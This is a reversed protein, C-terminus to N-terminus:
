PRKCAGTAMADGSEFKPTYGTANPLGASQMAVPLSERISALMEQEIVNKQAATMTKVSPWFDFRCQLMPNVGGFPGGGALKATGYDINSGTHADVASVVYNTYLSAPTAEGEYSGPVDLGIGTWSIRGFSTFSPSVIVYADVPKGSHLIQALADRRDDENMAGLKAGDIGLDVITFRSALATEVYHRVMANVDTTTALQETGEGFSLLSMQRIVISNPLAVIVGVAHVDKYEDALAAHAICLLATAGAFLKLM